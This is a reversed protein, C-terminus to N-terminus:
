KRLVRTIGSPYRSPIMFILHEPFSKRLVSLITILAIAVLGVNGMSAFIRMSTDSPCTSSVPYLMSAPIRHRIAASTLSPPCTATGAFIYRDQYQRNGLQALQSILGGVVVAANQRADDGAGAGINALAIGAAENLIDQLDTLASDTAVLFESSRDVNGTTQQRREVINQFAMAVAAASPDVSTKYLRLGTALQNQLEFMDNMNRNINRIAVQALLANSVRGSAGSVTM